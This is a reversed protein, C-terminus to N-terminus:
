VASSSSSVPGHAEWMRSQTRYALGAMVDVALAAARAEADRRDALVLAAIVAIAAARRGCIEATCEPSPRPRLKRALEAHLSAVDRAKPRAPKKGSWRAVLLAGAVHRYVCPSHTGEDRVAYGALAAIAEDTRGAARLACARSALKTREALMLAESLQGAALLAWVQEDVAIWAHRESEAYAARAGAYDGLEYRLEGLVDHPEGDDDEAVACWQEACTVAAERDGRYRALRVRDEWASALAAAEADPEATAAVLDAEARALRRLGLQLHGRLALGWARYSRQGQVRTGISISKTFAALADDHRGLHRLSVGLV